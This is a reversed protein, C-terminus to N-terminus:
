TLHASTGTGWNYIYGTFDYKEGVKMYGDLDIPHLVADHIADCGDVEFKLVPNGYGQDKLDVWQDNLWGYTTGESSATQDGLLLTAKTDLEATFGIYLADEEGTITYPTDLTTDCWSMARKITAEQSTLPTGELNTSIFVKLTGDTIHSTGYGASIQTITSGKLLTLKEKSLKIATGQKASSGLRFPTSSTRNCVGNCYSFQAANAGIGSAIAAACLLTLYKKM